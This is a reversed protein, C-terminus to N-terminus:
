GYVSTISHSQCPMCARIEEIVDRARAELRDSMTPNEGIVLLSALSAAAPAAFVSSLPFEEDPDAFSSIPVTRKELGFAERYRADLSEYRVCFLPILYPSRAEYDENQGTQLLESAMHVASEFIDRNTM